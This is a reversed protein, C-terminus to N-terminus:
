GCAMSLHLQLLFFLYLYDNCFILSLLCEGTNVLKRKGIREVNAADKQVYEGKDIRFCAIDAPNGVKLHGLQPENIVAAPASTARAIIEPLPVGM